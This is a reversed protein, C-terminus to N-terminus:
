PEISAAYDLPMEASVAHQMPFNRRIAEVDADSLELNLAGLNETLHAPNSTKVLTVVNTQHLLWSLAVQTPTANYKEGIKGLFEKGPLNGYEVPRWAVTMVDNAQAHELVGAAILERTMVSYHVQNTVIKNATHRQAERFRNPTMNCVGIHRVIGQDVLEDLTRMMEEIRIGDPPYYHAQYLDIYDTRLRKLSGEVARLLDDRSGHRGSFKTAIFLKSRDYGNTADGLLEESHGAGYSEATDFHTVGSEIAFRIANCDKEDNTEDRQWRSGGM